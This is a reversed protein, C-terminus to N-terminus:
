ETIIVRVVADTGIEGSYYVTFSGAYAKAEERDRICM